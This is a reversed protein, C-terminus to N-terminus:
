NNTTRMALTEIKRLKFLGIKCLPCHWTRLLPAICKEQEKKSKKIIRRQTLQRRIMMLKKAACRNALLGFHRIRMFGKPLVHSLFRRIFEEGTLSLESSQNNQYNKYRFTVQEQDIKVLRSEQIMGKRTYRGLYQLVTKPQCLCRKSYVCWKKKFLANSKPIDIAHGRLQAFMKAKFVTSLAKVPFLYGKNLAQWQGNDNLIGAPILCHLHIHQSLTQGWTHLVATAGLQGQYKGQHSFKSLTQWVAKFLSNYRKEPAYQSIINLEHPLTFVVHFYKSELLHAAQKEVWQETAEGQCRPCHRDRCSCYVEKISSCHDCQWQQQGLQATRCQTIHQCVKQHQFSLTYQKKYHPLFQHLVDALHISQSM